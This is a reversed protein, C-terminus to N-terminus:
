MLNLPGQHMGARLEKAAMGIEVVGHVVVDDFRLNFASGKEVVKRGPGSQLYLGLMAPVCDHMATLALGPNPTVGSKTGRRQQYSDFTRRPAAGHQLYTKHPAAHVKFEPM